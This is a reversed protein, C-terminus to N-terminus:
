QIRRGRITDFASSSTHIDRREHFISDISIFGGSNEAFGEPKVFLRGLDDIGVLMSDLEFRFMMAPMKLGKTKTHDTISDSIDYSVRLIETASDRAVHNPSPIVWRSHTRTIRYTGKYDERFDTKSLSLKKCSVFAIALLM